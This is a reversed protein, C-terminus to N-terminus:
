GLQLADQLVAALESPEEALYADGGAAEALAALAAADVGTGLGVTVLRVPRAPDVEATLTALVAELPPGTPDEERGDTVVLVTSSSSPDHGERMRRVAALTTDYLGTGGPVLREPLTGAGADLLERQGAPAGLPALPVVETHDVPAGAADQGLGVSFFWLGVSASDPLLRVAGRAADRTLEARSAGGPIVARMSASADLVLLVQSSRGLLALDAFLQRVDTSTPVALVRGEDTPTAKSQPRAQSGPTDDTQLPERFGDALAATRGADELLRVVGEVAGARPGPGPGADLRVIPYDLSVIGDAPSVAVLPTDRTDRNHVFVQQETAPVLPAQGGARAAAALVASTDDPREDDASTIDTTTGGSATGTPTGDATLVDAATAADLLAASLQQPDAVTARLAGFAQLGVASTALDGVVLERGSTLAQQWTPAPTGWGLEAVVDPSGAVVVPSSVLSGLSSLVTGNGGAAAAADALWLSSDPVWLHATDATAADRAAAPDALSAVTIAADEERVTVEVCVGTSLPERGVAQVAERLSPALDPDAVVTVPEAVPCPDVATPQPRDLRGTLAAAGLAALLLVVVVVAVVTLTRRRSAASAPSAATPSRTAPSEPSM